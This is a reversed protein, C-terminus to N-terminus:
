EGEAAPQSWRMEAIALAARIGSNLKAFLEFVDDRCLLNFPAILASGPLNDPLPRPLLSMAEDIMQMEAPSAPEVLAVMEQTIFHNKLPVRNIWELARLRQAATRSRALALTKAQAIGIMDARSLVDIMAPVEKFEADVPAPLQPLGAQAALEKIRALVAQTVEISPPVYTQEVKVHHTTEVPLVRELVLSAARINDKHGPDLLANRVARIADPSIARVALHSFEKIAAQVDPRYAIRSATVSIAKGLYGAKRAAFHLLGAGHAPAAEDFLAVVFSRHKESLAMMKPGLQEVNENQNFPTTTFKRM